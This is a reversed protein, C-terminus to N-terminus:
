HLEKITVPPEFFKKHNDVRFAHLHYQKGDSYTLQIGTGRVDMSALTYDGSSATEPITFEAHFLGPSIMKFEGPVSTMFGAQDEPRQTRLAMSAYITTIKNADSAHFELELKIVNGPQLSQEKAEQAQSLSGALFITFVISTLNFIRFLRISSM